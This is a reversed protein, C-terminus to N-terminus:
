RIKYLTDGVSDGLAGHFKYTLHVDLDRHNKGNPVCDYVGELTDNKSVPISSEETYYVTQKWHTPRHQPGTPLVAPNQLGSFEVDFWTVFAHCHYDTDFTLKFPVKFKLDAVTCTRIDM